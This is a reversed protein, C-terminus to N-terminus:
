CVKVTYRGNIDKLVHKYNNRRLRAEHYCLVCEACGLPFDAIPWWAMPGLILVGEFTNRGGALRVGWRLFHIEEGQGSVM